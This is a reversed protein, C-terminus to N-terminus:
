MCECLIANTVNSHEAHARVAHSRAGAPWVDHLKSCSIVASCSCCKQRPRGPLPQVLVPGSNQACYQPGEPPPPPPPPGDPPGVPGPGLSAPTGRSALTLVNAGRQVSMSPSSQPSWVSLSPSRAM